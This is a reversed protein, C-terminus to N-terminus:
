TDEHHEGKEADSNDDPFPLEMQTDMYRECVKELLSAGDFPQAEVSQSALYESVPNPKLTDFVFGSSDPDYHGIRVVDPFVQWVESIRRFLQVASDSGQLNYHRAIEEPSFVSTIYITEALLVVDKYRSHAPALHHPDIVQLLEAFKFPAGARLEDLVVASQNMYHSFPDTGSATIYPTQGREKALLKALTTKGTGSEGFLWIVPCFRNSKAEALLKQFYYKWAREFKQAHMAYYWAPIYEHYNSPLIEGTACREILKDLTAKQKLKDLTEKVDFNAAMERIDYQHKDPCNKHLFYQLTLAFTSHINEVLHVDVNFWTALTERSVNSNGFHLAIHYHPKVPNGNEDVDKDHLICACKKITTYRAVIDFIKEETFGDEVYVVIELAKAM